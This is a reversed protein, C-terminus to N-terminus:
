RRPVAPAPSSRRSARIRSAGRSPCRALTCGLSAAIPALRKVTAIKVPDVISEALWEYGKLAARSDKPVGDSYKGTLLGSALPSWITTGMGFTTM